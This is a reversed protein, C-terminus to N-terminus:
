AGVEEGELIEPVYKRILADARVEHPSAPWGQGCRPWEHAADYSAVAAAVKDRLAREAKRAEQAAVAAKLLAAREEETQAPEVPATDRKAAAVSRVAADLASALRAKEARNKDPCAKWAAFAAAQVAKATALNTTFM